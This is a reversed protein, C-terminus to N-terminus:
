EATPSPPRAIWLEYFSTLLMIGLCLGLLGGAGMVGYIWVPNDAALKRTGFDAALSFFSLGIVLSKMVEPCRSFSFLVGLGLLIMAISQLHIHAVRMWTQPAEGKDQQMTAAVEQHNTLLRFKATGTPSHCSVCRQALIPQVTAFEAEPGGKRAFEILRTREADDPVFPKMSGNLKAEMLTTDRKGFLHIRVDDPSIGPKGDVDKYTFFMYTVSVLYGIGALALFGTLAVRTSTPLQALRFNRLGPIM